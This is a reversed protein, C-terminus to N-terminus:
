ILHLSQKCQSLETSASRMNQQIYTDVITILASERFEVRLFESESLRRYPESIQVKLFNQESFWVNFM